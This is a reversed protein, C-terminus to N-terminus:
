KFIGYHAFMRIDYALNHFYTTSKHPLYELLDKGCSGERFIKNITGEYNQLVCLFPRHTDGSVDSEFDAFFIKNNKQNKKNNEEILKTCYKTDYHLDYDFSDSDQFKHFEINLIM